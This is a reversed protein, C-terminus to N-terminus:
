QRQGCSILFRHGCRIVGIVGHLHGHQRGLFQLAHLSICQRGDGSGTVKSLELRGPDRVEAVPGRQREGISLDARQRWRGPRVGALAYARDTGGDLLRKGLPLGIKLGVAVPPYQDFLGDIDRQGPVPVHGARPM